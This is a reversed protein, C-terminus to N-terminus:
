GQPWLLHVAAAGLTAVLTLAAFVVGAAWVGYSEARGQTPVEAPIMSTLNLMYGLTWGIDTGGAQKHFEIGSWTEESFGYGELLLTLIYLGSACYDRLWRDQGPSSAEVQKWPRQCFEWVTANVTALPQKSTLNLFHFTYYFNSFAYFRGQVPPQYVGDFACHGRGQCSSFNFLGRIASVCAGPNGTGEVTLNQDLDPPPTAHVCPSEYLAAPSLTAWYGSHYCPHRVLPTPSSQVLRTLLRTLMQDRGFCLYSHTYVSYESGYLRFTAQTSKDLIPGEPVFTIQTSAGGMDLAGVPTEELPQVWEGSFSYQAAEHWGHGGPVHANGSATGKPGADAGGGPLGAPERWGKVQCALAQSVVGTNNEKDAPWQYVFLSTHSSGADFVIGFKTDTPLLVSTAEALILILTTLGSAAAAGLLATLVGKKWTLGM